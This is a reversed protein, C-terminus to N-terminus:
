ELEGNALLERYKDKIYTMSEDVLGNTMGNKALIKEYEEHLSFIHRFADMNYKRGGSLGSSFDIIEWRIDSIEKRLFMDTLNELDKRIVEDHENSEKVDNEHREALEKIAKANEIVLKHDEERQRYKGVPKEFIDMVKCIIEYIAIISSLIVFIGIIVTSFDLKILATIDEM